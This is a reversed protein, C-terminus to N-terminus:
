SIHQLHIAGSIYHQWAITPKVVQRAPIPNIPEDHQQMLLLLSFQQSTNRPPIHISNVVGHM